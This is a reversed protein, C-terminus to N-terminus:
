EQIVPFKLLGALEEETPIISVVRYERPAIGTLCYVNNLYKKAEAVAEDLESMTPRRWPNDGAQFYADIQLRINKDVSAIFQAIRGIEQADIYEPILVTEASLQVDSKYINVFNELIRVNSKGTYDIHLDERFAKFGVSVKDINELNPMEYANTLLVNRTGVQHLARTIEPFLPDLSAEQGEFVVWEADLQKITEVVKDFELFRNPPAAIERPVAAHIYMTRDLMYDWIAKKCECGRCEINCGWFHLYAQKDKEAFAIHYIKTQAV